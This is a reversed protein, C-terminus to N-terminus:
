PGGGGLGCNPGNPNDACPDWYVTDGITLSVKDQHVLEDGNYADAWLVVPKGKAPPPDNEPNWSLGPMYIIIGAAQPWPEAGLEIMAELNGTGDLPMQTEGDLIGYKLYVTDSCDACGVAMWVHYGGQPGIILPLEGGDNLAQFCKEGTGVEYASTGDPQDCPTAGGAAGVGSTSSTTNVGGSGGAGGSGGSDNQDNASTISGQCAALGICAVLFLARHLM